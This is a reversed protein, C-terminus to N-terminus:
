RSGLQYHAIFDFDFVKSHTRKQNSLSNPGHLGLGPRPVAIPLSACPGRLGPGSRPEAAPSGPPNLCAVPDGHM